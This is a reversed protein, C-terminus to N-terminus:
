LIESLNGVATRITSSLMLKVLEAQRNTDTKLFIQRLYSRASQETVRMAAACERITGGAILLCTLTKEVPSLGYLKCAAAVLPKVDQEPDFFYLVAAVDSDAVNAAMVSALLPRRNGDRRLAMIPSTSGDLGGRGDRGREIVHEIAVQLKVSDALETASISNMTRRIGVKTDLMANATRNAFLLEGHWGLLVIGADSCDLASAMGGVRHRLRKNKTWLDIVDVILPQILLVLEAVAKKRAVVTGRFFVALLVPSASKLVFNFTACVYESDGVVFRRWSGRRDGSRISEDVLRALVEDCEEHFGDAFPADLYMLRPLRYHDDDVALASGVAGLSALM